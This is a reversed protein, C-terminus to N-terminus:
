GLLIFIEQLLLLLLIIEHYSFAKGHAPLMLNNLVVQSPYQYSTLSACSVFVNGLTVYCTFALAAMHAWSGKAVICNGKEYASM